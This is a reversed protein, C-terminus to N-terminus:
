NDKQPIVTGSFGDVKIIQGTKFIKCANTINTVAPIGYERSVVAGHSLIGGTETILGGIKSFVPTWGPDTRSVVLIDGANVESISDIDKVVNIPGTIIGQSAPIGYFIVSENNYRLEDNFERSGMLFKPPLKNECEKFEEFRKIVESSLNQIEQQNYKSFALNKIEHKYLFFIKHDDSIVGQNTFSKGIVLYLNRIRTIWKDLNFRQDERFKIYKKSNRLIISFFKWKLLGFKQKRLKSELIKETLERKRLNKNKLREYNHLQDKILSKLIDMINSLPLERWRPYYPERTFGRDGYEDLFAELEIIFESVYPNNESLLANYINVSKNNIFISKLEPSRNILSVLKIIQDNTETLKHKLGSVLIPYYKFCEEKGLFRNLLYQVLLNMGINHVPIGYRILRFHHIMIKDLEEGLDILDKFEGSQAINLLKTDFEKCFPKFIKQNWDEYAEATKSMSGNPDYLMIRLEAVIRKILHFPLDKMTKKGYLGSGEPFYNLVDENRMFTPIENEIKKKIVNLNFYVHAKHLKLLETDMQKYGMISNLEINVIKTIPDGLLGFFLPTVNDNWYDDSYGRSWFIEPKEIEPKIATVPRTQLIIIRNDEDIAWEIDQPINKFKREIEIGIKALKIIENHKLSPQHNLDDSLSKYEIGSENELSKPYAALAKNGIRKNLVKFSNRRLKRIFFQDPSSRGSVISEGLGFNSEILLENNNTTIPNITFLVGASKASIMLQVIIAIKVKNHPIKNNYRYIISRNTWLSAYCKKIHQFIQDLNKLNLYTDYQGAFSATPLDEATASSRIAVSHSSFQNYKSKVEYILDSPISGNEILNRIKKGCNNISELNDYDISELSKQIFEILNNSKLFYEYANTKVVFGTPVQFNGQILKSLNVAKNGVEQKKLSTQTLEITLFEKNPM